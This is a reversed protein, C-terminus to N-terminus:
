RRRIRRRAPATRREWDAMIQAWWQRAACEAAAETYYSAAVMRLGTGDPDELLVAKPQEDDPLIERDILRRIRARLTPDICSTRLIEAEDLTLFLVIM